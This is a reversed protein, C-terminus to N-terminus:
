GECQEVCESTNGDGDLQCWAYGDHDCKAESTPTCTLPSGSGCECCFGNIGGGDTSDDTTETPDGSTEVCVVDADCAATLLAITLLASLRM